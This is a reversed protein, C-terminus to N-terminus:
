AGRAPRTVWSPIVFNFKLAIEAQGFHLYAPPRSLLSDLPTLQLTSHLASQRSGSKSPDFKLDQMRCLPPLRSRSACIM